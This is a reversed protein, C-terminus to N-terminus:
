LELAWEERVFYRVMGAFEGAPEMMALIRDRVRRAPVGDPPLETLAARFADLDEYVVWRLGMLEARNLGLFKEAAELASAHEPSRAIIKVTKTFPDPLWAFREAPDERYPDVLHAREADCAGFFESYLRGSAEVLPDPTLLAPDTLDGPTLLDGSIPFANGKHSQNCIQCSFNYNDLCYALWWYVSKPRFHEVDGHAVVATPAECYACKGATEKKLQNKAAKWISTKFKLQGAQHDAILDRNRNVRTAGRFGAPISRTTRIRTLRIM